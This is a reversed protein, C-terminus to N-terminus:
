DTIYWATGIIRYNNPISWSGTQGLLTLRISGSDTYGAVKNDNSINSYAVFMTGHGNNSFPTGYIRDASSGSNNTIDFRLIVQRGIKTYHQTASGMAATLGSNQYATWTGEEYDDLANAAATDGGDHKVRSLRENPVIISHRGDCSLLAAGADHSYQNLGLM